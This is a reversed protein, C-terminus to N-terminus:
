FFFHGGCQVVHRHHTAKSTEGCQVCYEFRAMSSAIRYAKNKCYDIQNKMENWIYMNFRPRWVFDIWSRITSILSAIFHDAHLVYYTKFLVNPAHKTPAPPGHRDLSATNNVRVFNFCTFMLSLRWFVFYFEEQKNCTNYKIHHINTPSATSCTVFKNLLICSNLFKYAVTSCGWWFRVETEADFTM